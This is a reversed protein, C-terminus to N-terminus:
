RYVGTVRKEPMSAVVSLGQSRRRPVRICTARRTREKIAEYEGPLLQGGWNTRLSNQLLYGGGLGASSTDIATARVTGCVLSAGRVLPFTYVGDQAPRTFYRVYRQVGQQSVAGQPDDAIAHGHETTWLGPRFISPFPHDAQKWRQYYAALRALAGGPRIWPRLPATTTRPAALSPDFGRSVSTGAALSARWPVQPRPRMFVITEIWPFGSPLNDASSPPTTFVDALFVRPFGKSRPLHVRFRIGDRARRQSPVGLGRYWDLQATEGWRLPDTELSRLARTDNTALAHERLGWLTQTVKMADAETIPHRPSGGLFLLRPRPQVSLPPKTPRGSTQVCIPVGIEKCQQVSLMRSDHGQAKSVLLRHVEFFIAAPLLALAVALLLGIPRSIM